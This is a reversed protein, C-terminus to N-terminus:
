TGCFTQFGESFGEPPPAGFKAHASWPERVAALLAEFQSLDGREAAALAKEVHENRAIVAPNVSRMRACAEQLAEVESLAERGVRLRTRWRKLWPGWDAQSQLRLVDGNEALERFSLTFDARGRQLIKLLDEILERDGAQAVAELGLKARFEALWATEYLEAFHDIEAKIEPIVAQVDVGAEEALLPLLAEALCALNWPAIRPQNRYAYRGHHDISSFVTDPDYHDLFACPGFDISEGSITMNDTNMVGHIFGISMWRAILQAQRAIVARLFELAPRTAAKLTPDHRELAYNLLERTRLVREEPTAASFAAAFEFSGVRLHSSAVRALVAGPKPESRDITEGTAVVALSRSCPVGLAHLSESILVERLMPALAARGDGRRSYPTPGSGKLHVDFRRGDALVREGMLHARGDGLKTFGGFQHGAYAMALPETGPWERAGTLWASGERRFEDGDFGLEEALSANFFILRPERVPEPRVRTYFTPSLRAYSHDWSAQSKM